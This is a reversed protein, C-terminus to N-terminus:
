APTETNHQDLNGQPPNSLLPVAPDHPLEIKLTESSDGYQNGCNVTSFIIGLFLLYPSRRRRVRVAKKLSAMKVPSLHFRLATKVQM